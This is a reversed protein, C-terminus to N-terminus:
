YTKPIVKETEFNSFANSFSGVIFKFSRPLVKNSLLAGVKM